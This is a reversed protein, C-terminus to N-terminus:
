PPSSCTSSRTSPEVSAIEGTVGDEPGTRSPSSSRSRPAATATITMRARRPETDTFPSVNATLSGSHAARRLDAEQAPQAALQLLRRGRALMELRRDFVVIRRLHPAQEGVHWESVLLATM